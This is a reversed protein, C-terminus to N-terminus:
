IEKASYLGLVRVGQVIGNDQSIKEMEALASRIREASVVSSGVGEPLSVNAYFRYRWPEGQIPRSELKTLNLGHKMFLGLASHLSGPENATSFIVSAHNPADCVVEGSRAIVVFRTYNRPDTEIGSKLADLRYLPGAVDSAIAAKSPDGSSAVLEAAASTSETEIHKWHPYKALFESCQALGQPHSYVTEIGDISAGKVALLSHEIRLTAVGIIEIDEYRALNDYNEYVSGALSNEIPLMGTDARGDLVANIVERFNQVPLSAADDDYYRRIAQEAYAGRGGAYACVSPGNKRGAVAAAANQSQAATGPVSLKGQLRRRSVSRGVVPALVEIDRMMKEFQAPYLSQAGDSLACEPCPHVEVILGDAGAAVAALGMPPVKDRVGVAHSPDVIIPLHTLSRLVPIASLDLTNRTAKEYTRIGRECLIVDETGSALLYEAAMLWEEITASLGRKLIVPRGLAGVKKLLEFNQMNRAGIQYVDVYDIMAPIHESSVIETVVPLGYADGAERLIKVGEEAMGQFAYPSTRPKYAGGRLMVAGSEAVRAASEMMQELSEVACPGAIVSVRNGGIKVGRVSVVSNDRKFERSAMKYPKSIPIVRQVGPLIEVERPDIGVRGVAGFITEEDGAIENVRLSNKELFTRIRQKDDDRINKELVIVM